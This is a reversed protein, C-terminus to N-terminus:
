TIEQDCLDTLDRERLVSRQWGHIKPVIFPILRLTYYPPIIPIGLFDGFVVLIFMRELNGREKELDRVMEYITAGFLIDRLTIWLNKLGRKMFVMVQLLFTSLSTRRNQDPPTSNLGKESLAKEIGAEVELYSCGPIVMKQNVIFVPYQHVRYRLSKWLGQLSRPDWLRILIDNQFKDSLTFILDSLQKLEAQWDAPYEALDRQSPPNGLQVQSLIVECNLCVGFSEPFPYFVDVRVPKSLTNRNM